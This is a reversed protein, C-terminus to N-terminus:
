ARTRCLMQLRTRSKCDTPIDMFNSMAAYRTAHQIKNLVENSSTFSGSKDLDTHIFHATVDDHTPKSPHGIIQVYRCTCVYARVGVCACTLIVLGRLSFCLCLFSLSGFSSWRHTHQRATTGSGWTSFPSETSKKTQRAVARITPLSCRTACGISQGAACTCKLFFM